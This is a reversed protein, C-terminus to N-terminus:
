LEETTLETAELGVLSDLVLLYYLGDDHGLRAM